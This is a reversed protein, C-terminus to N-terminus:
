EVTKHTQKVTTKRKLTKHTQKVTTKRNWLKILKSLQQRGISCNPDHTQRVTM